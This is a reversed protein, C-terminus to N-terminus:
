CTPTLYLSDKLPRVSHKNIHLFKPYVWLIVCCYNSTDACVLLRLIYNTILLSLQTIFVEAQISLQPVSVSCNTIMLSLLIIFLEAQISLQPVSVSCKTILLSLQIVFLEAQISLQPTSVSCNTILLSLQIIFLEAQISLQPTSVSCNTIMLSLQIIFLETQISLQPVSVFCNWKTKWQEWHQARKNTKINLNFRLLVTLMRFSFYGDCM